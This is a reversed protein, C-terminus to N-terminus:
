LQIFWIPDNFYPVHYGRPLTVKEYETEWSTYTEGGASLAYSILNGAEDVEFDIQLDEIIELAEEKGDDDGINERLKFDAVTIQGENGDYEVDLELELKITITEGDDEIEANLKATVDVIKSGKYTYDLTLKIETDPAIQRLGCLNGKEDYEYTMRGVEEVDPGSLQQYNIQELMRGEEDYRIVTRHPWGGDYSYDREKVRGNDHYKYKYTFSTADPDDTSKHEIKTIRGNKDVTVDYNLDEVDADVDKLVGNKYTYSVTGIKEGSQTLTTTKLNGDKDYKYTASLDTGVMGSYKTRVFVSILRGQEDYEYDRVTVRNGSGQTERVSVPLYYTRPLFFYLLVGIVAAAAVGIAAFLPWKKKKKEVPAAEAAEPVAPEEAVQVPESVVVPEPIAVPESVVVPESIVVPEPVVMPEPLKRGCAMCFAADEPLKKGCYSCFM